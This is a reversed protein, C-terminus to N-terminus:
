SSREDLDIKEQLALPRPFLLMYIIGRMEINKLSGSTSAELRLLSSTSSCQIAGVREVVDASFSENTRSHLLTTLREIESRTFTKQQLIQEVESIGTAAPIGVKGKRGLFMRVNKMLKHECLLNLLHDLLRCLPLNGSLRNVVIDVRSVWGIVPNAAHVVVFCPMNMDTFYVPKLSGLCPMYITEILLGLCVAPFEGKFLKDEIEPADSCRGFATADSKQHTAVDVSLKDEIEPADSCRGFATADSKQHTAVDVSLQKSRNSLM